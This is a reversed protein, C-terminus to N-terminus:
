EVGLRLDCLVSIIALHRIADLPIRSSSILSYPQKSGWFTSGSLPLNSLAINHPLFLVALALDQGM